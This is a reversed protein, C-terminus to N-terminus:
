NASVYMPHVDDSYEIRVVMSIRYLLKRAKKLSYNLLKLVM